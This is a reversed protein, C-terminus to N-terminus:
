DTICKNNFCIGGCCTPDLGDPETCAIGDNKCSGCKNNGLQCGLGLCCKDRQQYTCSGGAATCSTACKSAANCANSGCCVGQANCAGNLAVCNADPNADGGRGVDPSDPGVRDSPADSASSGDAGSGVVPGGESAPELTSLTELDSAGTILNCAGALASALGAGLWLSVRRGM